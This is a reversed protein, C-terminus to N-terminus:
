TRPQYGKKFYNIDRFLERINKKKNNIELEKKKLYERMKSIFTRSTERKIKNASGRNTQNPSQFWQLKVQKM